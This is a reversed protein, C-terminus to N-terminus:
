GPGPLRPRCVHVDLMDTCYRRWGRARIHEFVSFGTTTFARDHWCESWSYCTQCLSGYRRAAELRYLSTCTHYTRCRWSSYGARREWDDM